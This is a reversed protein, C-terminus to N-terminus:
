NKMLFLSADALDEVYFNRRAKGSGFVIVEKLNNIKANHFKM